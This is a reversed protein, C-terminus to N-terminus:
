EVKSCHKLWWAKIAPKDITWIYCRIRNGTNPNTSTSSMVVTGLHHKKVYASLQRGYGGDGIVETFLVHSFLINLKPVYRHQTTSYEKTGSIDLLLRVADEPEDADQLDEIEKLGCCSTNRIQM